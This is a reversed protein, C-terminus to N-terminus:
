VRLREVLPADVKHIQLTVSSFCVAIYAKILREHEFPDTLGTTSVPITKLGARATMNYDLMYFNPTPYLVGDGPDCLTWAMMDMLSTVGNAALINQARVPESPNFFRNFLGAAANLLDESGTLPGYSLCESMPFMEQGIRFAMWHEMLSNLAGSLNVVGHPVKEPHYKPLTKVKQMLAWAPGQQSAAQARESPQFHASM